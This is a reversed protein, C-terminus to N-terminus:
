FLEPPADADTLPPPAGTTPAVGFCLAMRAILGALKRQRLYTEIVEIPTAPAGRDIDVALDTQMTMLAVNRHFGSDPSALDDILTQGVEPGLVSRCGMPDAVADAVTAYRSLLDKARKPGIGNIGPLNDSVDGRLAAYETYQGPNIGM